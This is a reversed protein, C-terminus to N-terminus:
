FDTTNATTETVALISRCMLVSDALIGCAIRMLQAASLM